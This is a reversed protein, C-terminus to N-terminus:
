ERRVVRHIRLVTAGEALNSSFPRVRAVAHGQVGLNGSVKGPVSEVAPCKNWDTM